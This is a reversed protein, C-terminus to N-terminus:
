HSIGCSGTDCIDKGLMRSLWYRNRATLRYLYNALRRVGPLRYLPLAWRLWARGAVVIRLIADAGGYVEGNNLIVKLERRLEDQTIGITMEDHWQLPDFRFDEGALIRLRKVQDVCFGCDADYIVVGSVPKARIEHDVM